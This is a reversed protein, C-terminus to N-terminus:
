EAKLARIPDVRVARLAPLVCGAVAMLVCLAVVVGITVPDFAPVGFLVAQMARGALLALAIGPVVGALVLWMGRGAVMRVVSPAQAGLAMRLGIERGRQSVMYSLVGHIGVAALLLAITSLVVLIRVQVSRSATQDDLIASMTRIDSVPQEPDADRVGRRVAAVLALPDGATQVVLDKPWYFILSGDGVQPAPFYVQPEADRELGRMRIDAVVGVIRRESFAMQFTRGLASQDPWHRQAFSESVVAVFPTDQRDGEAVDRGDVLPIGMAAFYGPTVFRMSATKSVDRIGAEGDVVAPWIGGGWVLPVASVFAAGTVGPQARVEALVRSYFQARAAVQDYRPSPLATRVTLIGESAFGPNVQNIRDIARLLLGAAILLVVTGAVEVTVLAGRLREKRRDGTQGGERLAV